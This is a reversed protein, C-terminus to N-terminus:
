CALNALYGSSFYLSREAGKFQAFRREHPSLMANAACCARGTSGCGERLVAEAMAQKLRPHHALGLYDNSSLDIGSPPM